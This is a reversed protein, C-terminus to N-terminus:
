VKTWVRNPIHDDKSKKKKENGNKQNTLQLHFDNDKHYISNWSM